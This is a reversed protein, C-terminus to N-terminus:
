KYSVRRSNFTSAIFTSLHKTLCERPFKMSIVFKASEELAPRLNQYIIVSELNAILFCSKVSRKVTHWACDWSLASEKVGSRTKDKVSSSVTFVLIAGTRVSSLLGYSLYNSSTIM